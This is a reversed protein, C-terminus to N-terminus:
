GQVSYTLESQRTPFPRSFARLLGEGWLELEMEFLSNNQRKIGRCKISAFCGNATGWRPVIHYGLLARPILQDFGLARFPRFEKYFSM